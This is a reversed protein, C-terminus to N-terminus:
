AACLPAEIAEVGQGGFEFVLAEEGCITASM